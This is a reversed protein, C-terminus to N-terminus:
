AHVQHSKRSLVLVEVSTPVFKCLDLHKRLTQFSGGSILRAVLQLVRTRHTDLLQSASNSELESDFKAFVEELTANPDELLSFCYDDLALSDSSLRRQRDSWVRYSVENQTTASLSRLIPELPLSAVRSSSLPASAAKKLAM